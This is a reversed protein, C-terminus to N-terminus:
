IGEERRWEEIKVMLRRLIDNSDQVSGKMEVTLRTKIRSQNVDINIHTRGKTAAHRYDERESKPLYEGETKVGHLHERVLKETKLANLGEALVTEYISTMVEPDKVRSIIFLHSMTILGSYYGDVIIEPVRNLRMIHCIYAPKLDLGEAIFKLPVDEEKQLKHLLKAKHFIDKEERIKNFLIEVDAAAM